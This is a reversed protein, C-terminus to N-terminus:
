FKYEKLVYSEVCTAMVGDFGVMIKFISNIVPIDEEEVNILDGEPNYRCIFANGVIIDKVEDEVVWARNTRLNEIKRNDNLVIVLNNVGVSIINITGGVYEQLVSLRDEIEIIGEKGFLDGVRM